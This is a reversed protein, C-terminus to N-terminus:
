FTGITGDVASSLRIGGGNGQAQAAWHVCLLGFALPIKPEHVVGSVGNHTGFYTALLPGSILVRGTVPGPPTTGNPLSRNLRVRVTLNGAATNPDRTYAVDWPQGVIARTAILVDTNPTTTANYSTTTAALDAAEQIQMMMSTFTGTVTGGATSTGFTFTNPAGTPNAPVTCYQDILDLQGQGDV